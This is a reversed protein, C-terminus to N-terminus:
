PTSSCLQPRLKGTYFHRLVAWATPLEAESRLPLTLVPRQAADGGPLPTLSLSFPQPQQALSDVLCAKFYASCDCLVRSHAWLQSLVAPEWLSRGPHDSATAARPPPQSSLISLTTLHSPLAPTALAVICDSHQPNDFLEARSLQQLHGSSTHSLAAM